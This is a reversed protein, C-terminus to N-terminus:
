PQTFALMTEIVRKTEEPGSVQISAVGAEKVPYDNGGPFLADGVFVMKAIAIGLMDRLNNIGFGKDAGARTVDISTTGGLLVSFEPVLDELIAKIRKRKVLDPDWKKKEQLPAQQGLASYTIQSARDEIVEGWTQPVTAGALEIAQRLAAKIKEKESSSLEESFLQKWGSRYEYYKTGCTPLVSLNELCNGEPLRSLLQTQFQPWDGGSIVAVKIRSLLRALLGAMEEDVPSKSNALTGDLDFVVLQMM